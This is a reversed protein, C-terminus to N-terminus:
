NKVNNPDPAQTKNHYRVRGNTVTITKTKDVSRLTASFSFAMFYEGDALIVDGVRVSVGPKDDYDARYREGARVVTLWGAPSPERAKDTGLRLSLVVQDDRGDDRRGVIEISYGAGLSPRNLEFSAVRTAAWPEGDVELTLVREIPRHEVFGVPKDPIPYPESTCSVLAVGMLFVAFARVTSFPGVSGM